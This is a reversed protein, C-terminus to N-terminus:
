RKLSCPLLNANVCMFNYNKKYNKYNKDRRLIHSNNLSINSYTKYKIIMEKCSLRDNKLELLNM